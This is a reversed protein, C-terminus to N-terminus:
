HPSDHQFATSATTIKKCAARMTGADFQKKTNMGKLETTAVQMQLCKKHAPCYSKRKSALM